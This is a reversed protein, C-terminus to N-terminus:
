NTGDLEKKALRGLLQILKNARSTKDKESREKEKKIANGFMKGFYSMLWVVLIALGLSVWFIWENTVAVYIFETAYFIVKTIGVLSTILFSVLISIFYNGFMERIPRMLFLFLALWICAAFIFKWTLGYDVGLVIKIFPGFVDSIFDSVSLLVRGVQSKELILVWQEKLYDAKQEGTVSGLNQIKTVGSELEDVAGDIDVAFVFSILIVFVFIGFIFRKGVEKM